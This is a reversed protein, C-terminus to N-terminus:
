RILGEFGPCKDSGISGLDKWDFGCMSFLGDDADRRRPKSRMLLTDNWGMTMNIGVAAARAAAAAAAVAVAALLALMLMLLPPPPPLVRRM